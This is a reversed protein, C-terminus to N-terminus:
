ILDKAASVASKLTKFPHSNLKSFNVNTYSSAEPSLIGAAVEALSVSTEGTLLVKEKVSYIETEQAAAFLNFIENPVLKVQPTINFFYKYLVGEVTLPMLNNLHFSSVLILQYSGDTEFSSLLKENFGNSLLKKTEKFMEKRLVDLFYNGWNFALIMQLESPSSDKLLVNVASVEHLLNEAEIFTECPQVKLFLSNLYFIVKFVEKLLVLDEISDKVLIKHLPSGPSVESPVSVHFEDTLTECKSCLSKIISRLKSFTFSGDLDDHEKVHHLGDSTKYVKVFPDFNVLEVSLQYKKDFSDSSQLVEKM